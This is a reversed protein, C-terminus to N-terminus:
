EVGYDVLEMLYYTDKMYLRKIPNIFIHEYIKDLLSKKSKNLEEKYRKKAYFKTKSFELRVVGLFPVSASRWLDFGTDTYGDVSATKVFFHYASDFKGAPTSVQSTKNSWNLKSYDVINKEEPNSVYFTDSFDPSSQFVIDPTSKIERGNKLILILEQSNKLLLMIGESIYCHPADAFETTQFPDVLAKFSIERIGHSFIDLRIWFLNNDKVFERGVVSIKYRNEMGMDDFGISRYEVFQGVQWPALEFCDDLREAFLNKEFVCCFVIFLVLIYINKKM